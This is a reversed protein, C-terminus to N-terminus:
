RGYMGILMTEALVHGEVARDFDARRFGDPLNLRDDLAYLRFVYRHPRGAPPKPGGWGIDGFSNEGQRLSSSKGDRPVGEEVERQNPDIDCALWHVFVGNPADPDECLLAFSETGPPAGNWTLRPSVNEGDATHRRPITSGDAFAPTSLRLERGQQQKSVEAEQTSQAREMEVEM